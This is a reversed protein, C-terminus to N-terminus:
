IITEETGAQRGFPFLIAAAISYFALWHGSFGRVTVAEYHRYEQATLTRILQGHNHLIYQGDKIDTVGPHAAMFWAFNIFAYFFCIIAVITLWRPSWKFVIKMLGLPNLREILGSQQYAILAGDKRLELIAPFWVALIGINLLWILPTQMSLPFDAIALLHVILGLLWGTAAVYFLLKKM